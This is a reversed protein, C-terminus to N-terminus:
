NEVGEAIIGPVVLVVEICCILNVGQSLFYIVDCVLRYARELCLKIVGIRYVVNNCAVVYVHAKQYLEHCLWTAFKFKFSNILVKPSTIM